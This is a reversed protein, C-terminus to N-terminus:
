IRDLTAPNIGQLCQSTGVFVTDLEECSRYSRWMEESPGLYPEMLFSLVGNLLFLCVLLCLSKLLVCTNRQFSFTRKASGRNQKKSIGSDSIQM